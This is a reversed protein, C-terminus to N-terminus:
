NLVRYAAMTYELEGNKRKDTGNIKERYASNYIDDIM